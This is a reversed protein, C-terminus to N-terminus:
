DNNLNLGSQADFLHAHQLNLTIDKDEGVHPIDRGM